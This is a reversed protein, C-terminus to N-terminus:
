LYGTKELYRLITDDDILALWKLLPNKQFEKLTYKLIEMTKQCHGQETNAVNLSVTPINSDEVDSFFMKHKAYNYWTNKVVTVRNEHFRKCTKIAFFITSVDVCGCPKFKRPYTACNPGKKCCFSNDHRLMLDNRMNYILHAFEHSPDIHFDLQKSLGQKLYSELKKLLPISLAIGSGINPYKFFTPNEYFAFHHVITAEKDHLAHGIWIDKTFDYQRLTNLLLEVSIQTREELLIIWETLPQTINLIPSILPTLTWDGPVNFDEKSVYIKPKNLGLSRYDEYLTQKLTNSIQQSYYNNQSIIVYIINTNELQVSFQFLTFLVYIFLM